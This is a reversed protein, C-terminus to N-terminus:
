CDLSLLKVSPCRVNAITTGKLTKKPRPLVLVLVLVEYMILTPYRLLGAESLQLTM